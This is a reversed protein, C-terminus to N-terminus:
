EMSDRKLKMTSVIDQEKLISIGSIRGLVEIIVNWDFKELSVKNHIIKAITDIM